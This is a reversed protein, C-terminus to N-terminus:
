LSSSLQDRAAARAATRAAGTATSPITNEIQSHQTAGTKGFFAQVADVLRNLIMIVLSTSFGLIFPLLLALAQTTFTTTTPAGSASSNDTTIALLFELFGKFGFPLSLVLGFLSGLAIRLIMLRQNSLDFTVDQQVSLANMGIFAVAGIAGLCILWIVYFPLTDAGVTKFHFIDRNQSVIAGILAAIAVAATGLPLLSIWGPIEGLIFRRRLPETLLGFLMQTHFEVTVWEEETPARGDFRFRLLNLGGFSLHNSDEANINIAEQILFSRLQKLRELDTIFQADNVFVAESDAEKSGINFVRSAFGSQGDAM